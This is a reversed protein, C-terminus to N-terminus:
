PLRKSKMKFKDNYYNHFKYFLEEGMKEKITDLEFEFDDTFEYISDGKTFTNGDASRNPLYGQDIFFADLANIKIM